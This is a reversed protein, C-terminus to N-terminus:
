WISPMAFWSSRTLLLRTRQGVVSAKIRSQTLMEIPSSLMMTSQEFLSPACVRHRFGRRVVFVHDNSDILNENLISQNCNWEGVKTVKRLACVHGCGTEFSPTDRSSSSASFFSSSIGIRVSVYSVFRMPPLLRERQHIKILARTQRKWPKELLFELNLENVIITRSEPRAVNLCRRTAAFPFLFSLSFYFLFLFVNTSIRFIEHASRPASSCHVLVQVLM